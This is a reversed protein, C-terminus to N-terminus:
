LLIFFLNPLLIPLTSEERRNSKNSLCMYLNEMWKIADDRASYIEEFSGTYKTIPCENVIHQYNTNARLWMFSIGCNGM